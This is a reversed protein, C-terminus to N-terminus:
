DMQGNSKVKILFVKTQEKLGAVGTYLVSGDQLVVVQGSSYSFDQGLLRQWIAEGLPTVELLTSTTKESSAEKVIGSVALNGQKVVMYTGNFSNALRIRHSANPPIFDSSPNPASVLGLEADNDTNSMVYFKHDDFQVVDSVRGTTNIITNATNVGVLDADLQFFETGKVSYGFILYSIRSHNVIEFGEILVVEEDKKGFFQHDIRTLNNQLIVVASSSSASPIINKGTVIFNGSATPNIGTCAYSETIYNGIDSQAIETGDLGVRSIYITSQGNNTSTGAFVYADQEVIINVLKDDGGSDYTQYWEQNGEADVKVLLFDSPGGFESQSNGGIIFGGDPTQKLAIGQQNGVGGYYKIFSHEEIPAINSPTDCGLLAFLFIVRIIKNM